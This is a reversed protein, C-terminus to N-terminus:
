RRGEKKAIYCDHCYPGWYGERLRAGCDPCDFRTYRVARAESREPPLFRRQGAPATAPAPKPTPEEDQEFGPLKLAALLARLLKQIEVLERHSYTYEKKKM